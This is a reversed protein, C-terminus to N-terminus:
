AARQRHHAHAAIGIWITVFLFACREKPDLRDLRDPRGERALATCTRAYSSDSVEKAFGDFAEHLKMVQDHSLVMGLRHAFRNRLRGVARLPAELDAALGHELAVDIRKAYSLKRVRGPSPATAEIFRKLEAEIHLQGRMVMGLDDEGLLAVHFAEQRKEFSPDILQRDAPTM